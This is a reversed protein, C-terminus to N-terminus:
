KKKRQILFLIILVIIIVVGVIGYILNNSEDSPLQENSNIKEETVGNDETPEEELINPKSFDPVSYVCDVAVELLSQKLFDCDVNVNVFSLKEVNTLKTFSSIDNIVSPRSIELEKLNLDKLKSIDHEDKYNRIHLTKLKVLSAISTIDSVSELNILLIELNTLNSLPFLDSFKAEKTDSYLVLHKLNALNSLPRLDTIDTNSLSLRQLSTLNKLSSVDSIAFDNLNLYELCTLDSIDNLASNGELKVAGKLKNQSESTLAVGQSVPYTPLDQTEASYLENSCVASESASVFSIGLLFITAIFIIGFTKNKM